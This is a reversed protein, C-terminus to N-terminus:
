RGAGRPGFRGDERATKRSHHAHCLSQLNKSEDTGGRARAVVHDVDTAAISRGDTLCEVCLPNRRLHALRILRWHHGYGRRAASPRLSDIEARV